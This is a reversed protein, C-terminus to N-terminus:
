ATRLPVVVLEVVKGGRFKVALGVDHYFRYFTGLDATGALLSDILVLPRDSGLIREFEAKSMGVRLEFVESALGERQLTLAPAAESTLFIAVVSNAGLVALGQDPYVYRKFKTGAIAPIAAAADGLQAQVDRILDSLSINVSQPTRV